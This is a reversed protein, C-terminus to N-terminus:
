QTLGYKEKFEKRRESTVYILVLIIGSWVMDFAINFVAMTRAIDVLGSTIMPINFLIMSAISTSIGLTVIGKNLIKRYGILLIILLVPVGYIFWLTKPFIKTKIINSLLFGKALAGAPRGSDMTFNGSYKPYTEFANYGVYKYQNLYNNINTYYLSIKNYSLLSLDVENIDVEYSNKGALEEYESIGLKEAADVSNENEYLVGYFTSNFINRGYDSFTKYRITPYLILILSMGIVVIRYTYGKRIIYLYIGMIVFPIVLWVFHEKLGCIITAVIFFLVTTPLQPKKSCVLKIYLSIMFMFLVYFAGEAYLTNLYLLYSLDFFVFVSIVGLIINGITSGLNIYKNIYYVSILLLVMMLFSMIRIDFYNSFNKVVSVVTRIITAYSGDKLFEGSDDLIKYKIYFGGDNVGAIGASKEIDANLGGSNIGVHLPSLCYIFILLFSVAISVYTIIKKTKDM